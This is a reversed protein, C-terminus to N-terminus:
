FLDPPSYPSWMPEIIPITFAVRRNFYHGIYRYCGLFADLFLSDILLPDPGVNMMPPHTQMNFHDPGVNMMLTLVM